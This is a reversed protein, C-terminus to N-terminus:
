EFSVIKVGDGKFYFSVVLVAEEVFGIPLPEAELAKDNLFFQVVGNSGNGSHPRRDVVVRVEDGCAFGVPAARYKGGNYFIGIGFTCWCCGKSLASECHGPMMLGNSSLKPHGVPVVGFSVGKSSNQLKMTLARQQGLAVSHPVVRVTAFASPTRVATVM